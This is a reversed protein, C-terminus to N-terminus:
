SGLIRAKQASFEDETLVGAARLEGLRTLRDLLDDPSAPQPAAAPAASRRFEDLEQQDRAAAQQRATVRGAVSSATGAIVATRAM